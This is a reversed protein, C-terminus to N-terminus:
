HCGGKEKKRRMSLGYMLSAAIVAFGGLTYMMIGSGGTEPLLIGTSNYIPVVCKIKGDTTEESKFTGSDTVVGESTVTIKIPKTPLIYGDPAEEEVLFYEGCALEGLEAMGDKDSIIDKLLPVKDDKAEYLSFKAGSLPLKEGDNGLKKIVVTQKGPMNAVTLEYSYRTAPINDGNNDVSTNVEEFGVSYKGKDFDVVGKGEVEVGTVVMGKQYGEPKTADPDNIEFYVTVKSYGNPAKTEELKYKGYPLTTILTTEVEKDDKSYFNFMGDKDSSHSTGIVAYKSEGNKDTVEKSLSFEAGALATIGDAGTKKFSVEQLIAEDVITFNINALGGTGSTDKPQYTATLWTPKDDEAVDNGSEDKIHIEMVKSQDESVEVKFYIENRQEYGNPAYSEELCYFTDNELNHITLTGEESTTSGDGTTLQQGKVLRGETLDCKYLKFKAGSLKVGNLDTKTVTLLNTGKAWQPYLIVEYVGNANKTAYLGEVPVGNKYVQGKEDDTGPKIIAVTIIDNDTFDADGTGNGSENYTGATFSTGEGNPSTNWGVFKYGTKELPIDSQLLESGSDILSNHVMASDGENGRYAYQVGPIVTGGTVGNDAYVLNWQETKKLLVGDIHWCDKERGDKCVYWAVYYDRQFEELTMKSFDVTKGAVKISGNNKQIEALLDADTPKYALNAEVADGNQVGYIHMWYKLPQRVIQGSEDKAFVYETYNARNLIGGPSTDTLSGPENPIQGDLRVFFMVGRGAREYDTFDSLKNYNTGYYEVGVSGEVHSPAAWIAYLDIVGAISTIDLTIVGDAVYTPVTDGNIQVPTGCYILHGIDPQYNSNSHLSWGYFKYTNGGSTYDPLAGIEDSGIKGTLPIRIVKKGDPTEEPTLELSGLWTGKATNNMPEAQFYYNDVSYENKYYNVRYTGFTPKLFKWATSNSDKGVVIQGGSCNLYNSGATSFISIAGDSDESFQLVKFESTTVSWAAGSSNYPNDWLYNTSNGGNYKLTAQYGNNEYDWTFGAQAYGEPLVMVGDAEVTVEVAKVENNENHYLAYKKDGSECYIQYSSGNELSLASGNRGLAYNSFSSTEFSTVKNGEEDTRIDSADLKETAEDGFHVVNMQEGDEYQGDLMQITISVPAKPEVEVGDVYFGINLLMDMVAGEGAQELYEAERQAYHEPDSEPTIEEAKLEANTPIEAEPGYEAIVIINLAENRCEKRLSVAERGIMYTSLSDAKFNISRSGDEEAAVAAKEGEVGTEAICFVNVEEGAEYSSDAIQVKISVPAQAAVKEDGVYFGMELLMDMVANEGAQELYMAKFEGYSDPAGDETILAAQLQAEEPIKAESDYEAIVRVNGVEATQRFEHQVEITIERTLTIVMTDLGDGASYILEAPEGAENGEEDLAQATFKVTGEPETEEGDVLFRLRYSVEEEVPEQIGDEGAINEDATQEEADIREAIFEVTEPINAEEGYEASVRIEADEYVKRYPQAEADENESGEIDSSAICERLLIVTMTDLKDGAKYVLTVLEGTDNGEGDLGHVVFSVTSEPEIETGDVLFKLRYTVEEAAIDEDAEQTGTDGETGAPEQADAEMREAVLEAEEPIGADKRYEATVRIEADEYVKQVLQTEEEDKVEIIEFCEEGHVHEKLEPIGCILNGQADYCSGEEAGTIHTHLELQGCITVEKVQYCADTHTHGETEEQGCIYSGYCEETHTHGEANEELGCAQMNYCEDTHVHGETEEQGCVITEVQEYCEATHEHGEETNECILDGQTVARCADTHQHGETEETECILAKCEETHRHVQVTEAEEQGCILERCADTHQHLEAEEEGCILIMQKEFCSETHVHPKVEPLQCVLDGGEDYCSADHTHVVYDAYGCILQEGNIASEGTIIGSEYCEATHVHVEMGCALVKKEHSLAQGNMKLAATTGATVAIALCLFVALWRRYKKQEGLLKAAQKKLTEM